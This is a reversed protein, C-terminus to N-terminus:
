EPLVITVTTGEEANSTVSIDGGHAKAVLYAYTTGLGTSHKKEPGVNFKEFFTALRDPPIPTGRNNIRVVYRNRDERLNVQLKLDCLLTLPPSALPQAIIFGWLTDM